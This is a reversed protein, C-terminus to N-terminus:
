CRLLWGADALRCFSEHHNKERHQGRAPNPVDGVSLRGRELRRRPSDQELGAENQTSASREVAAGAGVGSDSVPELPLRITILNTCGDVRQNRELLSVRRDFDKM